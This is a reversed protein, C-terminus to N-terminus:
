NKEVENLNVINFTYLIIIWVFSNIFKEVMLKKLIIMIMTIIVNYM